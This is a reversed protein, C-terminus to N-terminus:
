CPPLPLLLNNLSSSQLKYAEGFIILPTLDLHIFHAPCTTHIPSILFAYLIKSLFGSPLSWRYSRPTSPQINFHIMLFCTSFTDVADPEPYTPDGRLGKHVHYHVKPNCVLCPVEQSALHSNAEWPPNQEMSNTLIRLYGCNLKNCTILRGVM